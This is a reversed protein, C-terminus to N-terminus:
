RVLGDWMPDKGWLGNDLYSRLYSPEDAQWKQRLMQAEALVLSLDPTEGQSLRQCDEELREWATILEQAVTKYLARFHGEQGAPPDTHDQLSAIWREAEIRAALRFESDADLLHIQGIEKLYLRVPDESLEMAFTPDELIELPDDMALEAWEESSQTLAPEDPEEKVLADDDAPNTSASKPLPVGPVRTARAARNTRQAPASSKKKEPMEPSDQSLTSKKRPM